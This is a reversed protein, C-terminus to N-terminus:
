SALRDLTPTPLYAHAIKLVTDVDKAEVAEEDLGHAVTDRLQLAHRLQELEEASLPGNCYLTELLFRPSYSQLEIHFERVTRRLVAELAAWAILLASAPQGMKSLLEALALRAEITEVSPETADDRVVDAAPTTAGVVLDLRWDPHQEVLSAFAVVGPDAQLEHRSFRVDVIVNENPKFALLSLERDAAFDPRQERAPAIIVRYGERRYQDAVDAIFQQETM